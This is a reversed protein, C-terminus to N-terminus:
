PKKIFDYGGLKMATVASEISGYASMIIVKTDPSEKKIQKLLSLGDAEGLVLDLVVIDPHEAQFAKWGEGESGAVSVRLSEQLLVQRLAERILPEDDIVLVHANM